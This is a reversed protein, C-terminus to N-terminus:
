SGPKFPEKADAAYFAVLHDPVSMTLVSVIRYEVDDAKFRGPPPTPVCRGVDEAYPGGEFIAHMWGSPPEGTTDFVAEM